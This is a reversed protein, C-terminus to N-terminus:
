ALGDRYRSVRRHFKRAGRKLRRIFSLPTRIKWEEQGADEEKIEERDTNQGDGFPQDECDQVNTQQSGAYVWQGNRRNSQQERFDAQNQDADRRLLGQDAAFPTGIIRRREPGPPVEGVEEYLVAKKDPASASEPEAGPSDQRIGNQSPHSTLNPVSCDQHLRHLAGVPVGHGKAVVTNNIANQLKVGELVHHQLHLSRSTWSPQVTQKPAVTIPPATMSRSVVSKGNDSTRLSICRGVAM